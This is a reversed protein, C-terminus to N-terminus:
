RGDEECGPAGKDRKTSSSTEINDKKTDPREWDSQAMALMPLFMFITILLRKM